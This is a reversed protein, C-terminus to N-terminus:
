RFHWSGGLVAGIWYGPLTFPTAVNAVAFSDPRFWAQAEVGAWLGFHQTLGQEWRASAMGGAVWDVSSADHTYGESHAALRQLCPGLQVHLKGQPNSGPVITYRAGLGYTSRSVSISGPVLTESVSTDLGAEIVATLRDGYGIEFGLDGSEAQFSPSVSAAIAGGLAIGLHLKPEPSPAADAPEVQTVVEPSPVPSRDASPSAPAPLGEPEPALPAPLSPPLSGADVVEPAPLAEQSAVEVTSASLTPEKLERPNRPVVNVYAPIRRVWLKVILAITQAASGCENPDIDVLRPEAPRGLSALLLRVRGSEAPEIRLWAETPTRPGEEVVWGQLAHGLVERVQTATPCALDGAVELRLRRGEARAQSAIPGLALLLFM